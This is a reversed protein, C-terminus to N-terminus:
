DTAEFRALMDFDSGNPVHCYAWAIHKGTPARLHFRIISPQALLVFPREALNGVSVAQKRCLLTQWAEAWICPLPVRCEVAKWPIPGSLAYDMKFIGPGRRFKELQRRYSPSLKGNSLHLLQKPTIDCLTIDYNRASRFQCHSHGCHHERGTSGFACVLRQRHGTLRRSSYAMRCCTRCGRFGPWVVRQSTRESAFIFAGCSRCVARTHAPEFDEVRWSPRRSCYCGARLNRWCFLIAQCVCCPDCFIRPPIPGIEALPEMLNRWARGEHGLVVEADDLNRELTIATGDDFPHALPAPSYIWELGYDSLPLSSFFPSGVAMPHVASGFDHHFGPLTLEMTRAGGGPLTEAEFVDVQMGAQALVIAASLGNPGPRDRM